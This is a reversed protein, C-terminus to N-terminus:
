MSIKLLYIKRDRTKVYFDKVIIDEKNYFKLRENRLSLAALVSFLSLVLSLIILNIGVLKILRAREM